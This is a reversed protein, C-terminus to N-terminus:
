KGQSNAQTHVRMGRLVLCSNNVFMLSYAVHRSFESTERRLSDVFLIMYGDAEDVSVM